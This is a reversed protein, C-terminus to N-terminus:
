LVARWWKMLINFIEIIRAILKKFFAVAPNEEEPSVTIEGASITESIRGKSDTLVIEYDGSSNETVTFSHTWTKTGDENVVCDTIEVGDVEVKVIDAPTNVTLTATAGSQLDTTEWEATVGSSDATTMVTKVARAAMAYTTSNVTVYDSTKAVSDSKSTFKYNTLSIVADSDNIVVISGNASYEDTTTDYTLLSSIDYYKEAAGSVTVSKSNGSTNLIRVTAEANGSAGEKAVKMGIQFSAASVTPIFAIAQNEYLYLENNPGAKSFKDMSDAYSGNNLVSIGDIFMTGAVSNGDITASGFDNASIITDRIEVFEANNERDANYAKEIVGSVTEGAPDYIRVGDIYIRYSDDGTKDFVKAYKPTVTVRYTGYSLTSNGVPVSVVPIQYLGTETGNSTLWGFALAANDKQKTSYVKGNVVVVTEDEDIEVTTGSKYASEYLPANDVTSGDVVSTASLTATPESASADLYLQGYSYGYYTNVIYTKNFDTGNIGEVKVLVAGTKNSTVSFLDFGTGCFTFSATPENGISGADLTTFRASDLSYTVSSDNYAPDYGYVNDADFGDVANAGPRDEAQYATRGSGATEWVYGNGPTFDIFSEEYFINAAPIVTIKSYYYFGDVVAEYYFVEEASMQMDTPTYIVTTGDKPDISATGHALTISTEASDFQSADYAQSNLTGGFSASIANVPTDTLIIKDNAIPHIKVPLGYDIVVTDPSLGETTYVGFAFHTNYYDSVNPATGNQNFRYGSEYYYTTVTSAEDTITVSNTGTSGSSIVVQASANPNFLTYNDPVDALPYLTYSENYETTNLRILYSLRDGIIIRNEFPIVTGARNVPQGNQNVLYFEYNVMAGQWPLIPSVTEKYAENGLYNIYYLIASTNTPYAGPDRTGEMTGTLYVYYTLSFEKEAIIGIKWYFTEPALSYNATGDGDLDIMVASSTTNYFFTSANIVGDVLINTAGADIQDSYAETGDSNFTVTELLDPDVDPRRTGVDNLDSIVGNALDASTYLTYTKVEITPAPDLTFDQGNKNYTSALQLDYESGMRDVFYASTAAQKIDERIATFANDLESADDAFYAYESSSALNTIVYQMTDVTIQDDQALCFGISYMKAGLGPVQTMYQQGNYSLSSDNKIVTYLNDPSGKIADAMRHSNGPGNYFYKHSSTSSPIEDESAYTGKLWNNWETSASKSGFYNYAFPAGDSMFIVYIDRNQQNAENQAKKSEVLQYVADFAYDYNTGSHPSITSEDFNALDGIPVFAGADLATSGTYVEANNEGTTAVSDDLRDNDSSILTQDYGGNFDAIAMDIDQIMGSENPQNLLALLNNVSNQLVQIRTSTSGDAATVSNNMSSSTDLMLVVDIGQDMPVGTATLEIQAVGSNQFNGASASKGVRVSGPNPYDPYEDREIVHLTFDSFWNDRYYVALGAYDGATGTYQVANFNGTLDLLMGITVPIVATTDDTYTVSLTAGTNVNRGAGVYVTGENSDLTIAQIAKSDEGSGPLTGEKYAYIYFNSPNNDSAYGNFLEGTGNRQFAVSTGDSSNTTFQFSGSTGSITFESGTSELTADHRGSTSNKNIAAYQGDRSLLWPNNPIETIESTTETSFTATIGQDTTSTLVAYEDNGNGLKWGSNSNGVLTWEKDTFDGVITDSGATIGSVAEVDFGVRTGSSNSKSVSSPLMFMDTDTNYILLYKKGSVINSADTIQRYVTGTATSTTVAKKYFYVTSQQNTRRATQFTTNYRLGYSTSNTLYLKNGSYTYNVANDSFSISTSNSSLSLYKGANTGNVAKFSNTAAEYQWECDSLEGDIINNTESTAVATLNSGSLTTSCAYSGTSIVYIAGDELDSLSSASVRTYTVTETATPTEDTAEYIYFPAAGSGYGNIVGRSNYNLVYDGSSFTFSGASGGITFENVNSTTGASPSTFTWEYDSYDAAFDNGLVISSDITQPTFGVRLSTGSGSEKVTPTLLERNNGYIILYKEGSVIDDVSSIPSYYYGLSSSGGSSGSGSSEPIVNAIEHTKTVTTDLSVTQPSTAVSTDASYGGNTAENKYSNTVGASKLNHIGSEDVRNVTLTTDDFQFVTMTLTDDAGNHNEYYGTFGANMYTFALTEAQYSTTSGQAINISDGKTLYVASGGLYDDWGNSHDHGYLFVINLGNSGADNLVDFLYNAFKGDGDNYTRMSYHLPLHSVVFIPATYGVALKNNLYVRLNEATQKITAEDSNNWMYDDENIVFVGYKGSAPDNNGSTAMGAAGAEDHNGQVFVADADSVNLSTIASKLSAIGAAAQNYGYSYDGCCLFGDATTFGVSTQMQSIVSQVFAAGADNGSPNQYDSCAVVTTVAGEASAKFSAENIVGIVALSSVVMALSLILSIFRNTKKVTKKM